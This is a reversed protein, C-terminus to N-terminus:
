LNQAYAIFQRYEDLITRLAVNLSRMGAGVQTGLPGKIGVLYEKFAALTEDPLWTSTRDFAKQGVFM